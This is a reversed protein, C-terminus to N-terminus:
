QDDAEGAERAHREKSSELLCLQARKDGRSLRQDRTGLEQVLAGAEGHGLSLDLEITLADAIGLDREPNDLKWAGCEAGVHLLNCGHDRKRRLRQAMASVARSVEACSSEARSVQIVPMPM